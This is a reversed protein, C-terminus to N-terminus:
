SPPHDAPCSGPPENYRHDFRWSASWWGPAAPPLRYLMTLDALLAAAYRTVGAPCFHTNDIMRVRVWQSRPARPDDAPALCPTFKGDLEVASAVPFYMVRGPRSAAMSDVISNWARVGAARRADRAKANNVFSWLPGLPPFQMFIVGAVGNGPALLLDLAQGLMVRYAAPHALAENNDWSWMGVVLDPHLKSVLRPLETHWNAATTLGWGPIAEDYVRVVKTSDLAAAIGPASGWMVSDGILMVRLPDTASVVRGPPLAIPVEHSFGGAGPVAAVGALTPNTPAPAAPVAAVPVTSVLIVGAVVVAGAPALALRRWGSLRIRRIRRELFYYSVSAVGFTAGLRLATLSIGSLGTRQETLYVFLPWHWLYLGYSIKGVWRLPRISLVRGLPGSAVQRVDAIVLAAAIACGLLGGYFIWPPPGSAVVWCVGLGVAALPALVHLVHRARASPQPRGAVLMAVTAGALLEFARTDTGLYVRNVGAGDHYLFAMWAASLLGGVVTLSVGFRRWDETGAASRHGHLARGIGRSRKAMWTLLGLVILPWVLYFQEEIALSWTQELPSPAAFQAFYSQHSFIFHWNAVYFLTSLADGRLSSLDIPPGGHGLATRSSLLAWLGLMVLMAFLAPLLRRARRGWFAKLVVGGSSLWEELLLSTILFGSLVFFLDVGLYGGGAWGYGLHYALVGGIALARLGDLAPLYRGTVATPVGTKAKKTSGSHGPEARTSGAVPAGDRAQTGARAQTGISPSNLEGM